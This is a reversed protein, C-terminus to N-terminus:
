ARRNRATRGSMAPREIWRYTMSGLLISAAGVLVPSWAMSLASDDGVLNWRSALLIMPYHWLYVSLSIEGVYVLPRFGAVRVLASDTGRATPEVILLLLAASALAIFTGMFWPHSDHVLLGLLGGAAIVLSGAFVVRRRSWTALSGREMWVFVVAVAMGFAFNDALALISRSLVAVGNAGFEASFAGLEPRGRYLHEAWARGALGVVLLFAPPAMAIAFARRSSGRAHRVLPIALLPLLVYFCLETTLSWSPNIGTQITHPFFTQLLGLNLLLPGPDTLMGSGKDTGATASDVANTVYSAQLAFNTILFIVLYAPYVRALRRRAYSQVAVRQEGTAIDRVFPLYILLGSMAFFVVLGQSLLQAAGSPTTGPAFHGWCHATLVALCAVGRLGDLGGLYQARVVRDTMPVGAPRPM